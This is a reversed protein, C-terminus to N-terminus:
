LAENVSGQSDSLLGHDTAQAGEMVVSTEIATVQLLLEEKSILSSVVNM